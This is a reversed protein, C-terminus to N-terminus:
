KRSPLRDPRQRLTEDLRGAILRQGLPNPHHGDVSLLVDAASYRGVWGDLSVVTFGADRALDAFAAAQAPTNTVGPIPLYVWVPLVGRRRCEDVLDRYVGRVIDMAFPELMADAREVPM